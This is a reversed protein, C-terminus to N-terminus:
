SKATGVKSLLKENQTELTRMQGRLEAAETRAADREEQVTQSRTLDAELKEVMKQLQESTAKHGASEARAEVLATETETLRAKLAEIEQADSESESELKGIEDLADDFRKQIEAVEAAAKDKVEQAQKDAEAAALRWANGFALQVQSPIETSDKKAAPPRQAQWTELHKYITRLSGGGLADLMATASIDKGEAKLRNATEFFEDAEVARRRAMRAVESGGFVSGNYGIIIKIKTIIKVIVIKIVM